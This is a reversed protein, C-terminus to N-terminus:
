RYYYAGSFLYTKPVSWIGRFTVAADVHKGDPFYPFVSALPLPPTRATALDDALETVTEGLLLYVYCM